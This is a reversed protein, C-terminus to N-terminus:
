VSPKMLWRNSSTSAMLSRTVTRRSPSLTSLAGREPTSRAASTIAITPRSSTVLSRTRAWVSAPPRLSISTTSFRVERGLKSSTLKRTRSPSTTPRAPSTPLPRVSIASVIKPRRRASRPVTRKSPLGRSWRVGLAQMSAPRTYRGSSRPRWPMKASTSTCRLTVAPTIGRSSRNPGSILVAASRAIALCAVSLVATRIAESSVSILDSDPPLWCRAMSERQSSAPGLTAIKSSGVLPTSTPALSSM